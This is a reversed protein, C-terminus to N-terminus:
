IRYVFNVGILSYRSESPVQATLNAGFHKAFYFTGSLGVYPLVRFSSSSSSTDNSGFASFAHTTKTASDNVFFIGLLPALRVHRTNVASYAGAIDGGYLTTKTSSEDIGFASFSSHGDSKGSSSVFFGLRAGIGVAGRLDGGIGFGPASKGPLMALGAFLDAKSEREFPIPRPMAAEAAVPEDSQGVTQSGAGQKVTQSGPAKQFYFNYTDGDKKTKADPKANQKEEARAFSVAGGLGMLLVAALIKSVSM